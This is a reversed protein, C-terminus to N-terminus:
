FPSFAPDRPWDEKLCNKSYYFSNSCYFISGIILLAPLIRIFLQVMDTLINKLQVKDIGKAFQEMM